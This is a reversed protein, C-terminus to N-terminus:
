LWWQFTERNTVYTYSMNCAHSKLNWHSHIYLASEEPIHCWATQYFTMSTNFSHVAEVELASPYVLFTRLLLCIPVSIEASSDTANRINEMANRLTQLFSFPNTSWILSHQTAKQEKKNGTEYNKSYVSYNWNICGDNCGTFATKFNIDLRITKLTRQMFYVWLTSFMNTWRDVRRKMWM